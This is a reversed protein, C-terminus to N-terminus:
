RVRVLRAIQTRSKATLRAFYIGPSVQCRAADRGDWNVTLSGAPRWGSMLSAIRRGSLDFVGLDMVQSEALTFAVRTM